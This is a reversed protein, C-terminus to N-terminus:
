GCLANHTTSNMVRTLRVVTGRSQDDEDHFSYYVWGPLRNSFSTSFFDERILKVVWTTTPPLVTPLKYTWFM